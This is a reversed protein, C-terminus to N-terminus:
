PTTSSPSPKSPQKDEEELKGVARAARVEKRVRVYIKKVADEGLRFNAAVDVVADELTMGGDMKTVVAAAIDRDRDTNKTRKGPKKKTGLFRALATEPDPQAFIYRGWDGVGQMLLADVVDREGKKYEAIQLQYERVLHQVAEICEPDTSYSRSIALLRAIQEVKLRQQSM